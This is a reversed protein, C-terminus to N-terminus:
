WYIFHKLLPVQDLPILRVFAINWKSKEIFFVQKNLFAVNQDLSSWM